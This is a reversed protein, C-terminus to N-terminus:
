RATRRRFALLASLGLGLAVLSGPEPVVEQRFEMVYGDALLHTEDNASLTLLPLSVSWYGIGSHSTPIPLTWSTGDAPAGMVGKNNVMKLKYAAQQGGLVTQPPLTPMTITRFTLRILDYTADKLAAVRLEWIRPYPSSSLLIQQDLAGPLGAAAVVASDSSTFDLPSTSTSSFVGITLTTGVHGGSGDDPRIGIRWSDESAQVAVGLLAVGALLLLAKSWLRM